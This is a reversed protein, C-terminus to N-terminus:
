GVYARDPYAPGTAMTHTGKMVVDMKDEDKMIEPQAAVMRAMDQTLKDLSMLADEIDKRVALKKLFKESCLDAYM